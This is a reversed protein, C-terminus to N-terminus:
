ALSTSGSVVTQRKAGTFVILRGHQDVGGCRGIMVKGDEDVRISKEALIHHQSYEKLISSNSQEPHILRRTLQRALEIVMASMSIQRSTLRSLSTSKERLSNPLDSLDLNVNMGIGVLDVGDIRECLLGALKRDEYFLDNPWKLGIDISAVERIADRTALGAFLPVLNPPISDHTPLVFTATMVGPPSVFRNKGRGRGNTQRGTLVVAPAFLKKNRRARAAWTNTSGVTPIWVLWFPRIQQRLTSISYRDVSMTPLMVM